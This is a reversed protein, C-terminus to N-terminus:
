LLSLLDFVLNGFALAAIAGALLLVIFPLQPGVRVRAIGRHELEKAIGERWKRDGESTAIEGEAERDVPYRPDRVWVFRRPLDAVPITYTTFGDTGTFEGRRLNMAALAIPVAVSLLAADMLLDIAFPLVATIPLIGPPVYWWPNPFFPVLIGAVMVAKADAGGFLVGAEFLGRAFLVTVVVAAAPAPVGDPGLGHLVLGLAFVGLVGVYIGLELWEAPVREPLADDWPVLHEFVFLAAVIWFVLPVAGGPAVAIGGLVAGALTLLIWLGEPVERTRVDTIAGFALGGVLLAAGVGLLITDLDL